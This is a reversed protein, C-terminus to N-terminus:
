KKKEYEWSDNVENGGAMIIVAAEGIGSREIILSNEGIILRNQNNSYFYLIPLIPILHVNRKTYFCGDGKREIEIYNEAITLTDDM